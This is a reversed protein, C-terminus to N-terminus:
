LTIVMPYLLLEALAKAPQAEVLDGNESGVLSNSSSVTGTTTKTGDFWTVAGLNGNWGEFVVVYNGNTLPTM